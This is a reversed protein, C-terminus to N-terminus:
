RPRTGSPSTKHVRRDAIAGDSDLNLVKGTGPWQQLATMAGQRNALFVGGEVPALTVLARSTYDNVSHGGDDAVTCRELLAPGHLSATSQTPRHM